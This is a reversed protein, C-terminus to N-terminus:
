GSPATPLGSTEPGVYRPLQIGVMVVCLCAALVTPMWQRGLGLLIMGVPGAAMLYPSAAAVVLLGHM